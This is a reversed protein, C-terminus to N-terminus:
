FSVYEISDSQKYGFRNIAIPQLYIYEILESYKYGFMIVAIPRLSIYGISNSPKYGYRIIDIPQLLIDTNRYPIALYNPKWKELTTIRWWM